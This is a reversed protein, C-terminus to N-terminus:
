RTGPEHSAFIRESWRGITVNTVPVLRV